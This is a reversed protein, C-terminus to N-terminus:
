IASLNSADFPLGGQTTANDLLVFVVAPTIQQVTGRANGYDGAKVKVRQDVSFAATSARKKNATKPAAATKKGKSM